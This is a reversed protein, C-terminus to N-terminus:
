KGKIAFNLAPIGSFLTPEHQSFNKAIQM